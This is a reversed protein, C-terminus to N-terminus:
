HVKKRIKLVQIKLFEKRFYNLDFLSLIRYACGMHLSKSIGYIVEFTTIRLIKDFDSNQLKDSSFLKKKM